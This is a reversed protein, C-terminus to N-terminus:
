AAFAVVRQGQCPFPDVAREFVGGGQALRVLRPPASVPLSRPQAHRVRDDLLLPIEVGVLKARRAPAARRGDRQLPRPRRVVACQGRPLAIVVVVQVRFEAIPWTVAAIMELLPEREEVPQPRRAVVAPFPRAPEEVHRAHGHWHRRVEVVVLNAPPPLVRMRRRGAGPQCVM